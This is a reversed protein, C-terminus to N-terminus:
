LSTFENYNDYAVTVMEKAEMYAIFAEDEIEDLYTDFSM